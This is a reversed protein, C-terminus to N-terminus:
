SLLALNHVDGEIMCLHMDFICFSSPFFAVYYHGKIWKYSQALLLFLLEIGLYISDTTTLRPLTWSLKNYIGKQYSYAFLFLIDLNTNGDLGMNQM